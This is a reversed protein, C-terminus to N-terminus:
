PACYIVPLAGYARCESAFAGLLWVRQSDQRGITGQKIRNVTEKFKKMSLFSTVLAVRAQRTHHAVVDAYGKLVTDIRQGRRIRKIHTSTKNLRYLRAWPARKTELDDKGADIRGLNKLAQGIVTQFDSASAGLTGFKAHYMTIANSSTDIGIYDAWEDGLDDCVLIAEKAIDREIVGFVSDDPFLKSQRTLGNDGKESSCRALGAVPKMSALLHPAQAAVHDDRVIRGDVFAFRVDSMSVFVAENETDQLWQTITQLDSGDSNGIRVNKLDPSGISYSQKNEHLDFTLAVGEFTITSTTATRAEVTGPQNLMRIAAFAMEDPIRHLEVDSKSTDKLYISLDGNALGHELKSLDLFVATPRVGYPLDARKIQQAFRQLFRPKSTQLAASRTRLRDVEDAMWEIFNGLTARPGTKNMRATSLSASRIAGDAETQISTLVQRNLGQPPLSANLDDAALTRARIGPHGLSMSKLSVRKVKAAGDLANAVANQAVRKGVSAIYEDRFSLRGATAVCAYSEYQVILVLGLRQDRLHSGELFAPEEEYPVITYDVIAFTNKIGIRRHTITINDSEKSDHIGTLITRALSRSIPAVLQYFCANTRLRLADDEIKYQM